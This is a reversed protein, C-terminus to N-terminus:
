ILVDRSVERGLFYLLNLLNLLYFNTYLLPFGYMKVVLYGQGWIRSTRVYMVARTGEQAGQALGQALGKALGKALGESDQESHRKQSTVIHSLFNCPPQFSPDHRKRM